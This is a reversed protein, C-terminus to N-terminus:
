PRVNDFPQFRTRIKLDFWHIGYALAAGFVAGFLVDLPYHVGIYIRSYAVFAALSFVGARFGINKFRLCLLTAVAFSNVAHNSPFGYSSLNVSNEAILRVGEMAAFPRPREFFPKLLHSTAGDSIILLPLILLATQRGAKKGFLVLGLWLVVFFLRSRGLGTLVMMLSDIWPYSGAKNLLQFLHVDFSFVIDM